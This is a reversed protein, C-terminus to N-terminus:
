GGCGPSEEPTPAVQCLKAVCTQGLSCSIRRYCNKKLVLEARELSEIDYVRLDFRVVEIGKLLGQARLYGSGAVVPLHATIPLSRPKASAKEQPEGADAHDGEVAAEEQNEEGSSESESVPAERPVLEVVVARRENLSDDLVSLRLADIQGPIRLDGCVKLEIEGDPQCAAAALLAAVLLLASHRLALM